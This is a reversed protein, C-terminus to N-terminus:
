VKKTSWLGNSKITPINYKKYFGNLNYNQFPSKVEKKEKKNEDLKGSKIYKHINLKPFNRNDTNNRNLNKNRNRMHKINIFLSSNKEIDFLNMNM